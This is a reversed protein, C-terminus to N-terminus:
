FLSFLFYFLIGRPLGFFIFYIDTTCFIVTYKKSVVLLVQSVSFTM